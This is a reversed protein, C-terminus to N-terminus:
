VADPLCIIQDEHENNHQLRNRQQVCYYWKIAMADEQIELFSKLALKGCDTNEVRPGDPLANSDDSQQETSCCNRNM